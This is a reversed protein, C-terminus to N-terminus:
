CMGVVITKQFHTVRSASKEKLNENRSNYWRNLLITLIHFLNENKKKGGGEVQNKGRTYSRTARLPQSFIPPTQGIRAQVRRYLYAPYFDPPRKGTCKGELKGM